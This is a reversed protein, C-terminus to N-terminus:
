RSQLSETSTLQLGRNVYVTQMDGQQGVPAQEAHDYKGSETILGRNTSTKVRLLQNVAIKNAHWHATIRIFTM